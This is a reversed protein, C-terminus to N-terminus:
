TNVQCILAIAFFLISYRKSSSYNCSIEASCEKLASPQLKAENILMKIFNESKDDVTVGCKLSTCGSFANYNIRKVCKPINIIRLNNCNEFAFSEIIEVSNDPIMIYSINSCGYFSNQSIVTVTSPLYFFRVPSAPPVVLLKTLGIDFLAYNDVKFNTEELCEIKELNHCGKFVGFSFNKLNSGSQITFNVLKLNDQFCSEDLEEISLPLNISTLATGEFANKRIIKTNNNFTISSLNTALKFSFPDISEYSNSLEFSIYELGSYMFANQGIFSLTSPFRLIKLSSCNRFCEDSINIVYDEMDVTSLAICNYFCQQDLTCGSDSLTTRSEILNNSGFTINRLNICNQFSSKYVLQISSGFNFSKLNTCNIFADKEIYKLTNSEIVFDELGTCYEFAREQIRELLCESTIIIKHINSKQSFVAVSIITVTKPITIEHNAKSSFYAVITKNSSSLMIQNEQDIFFDSTANKFSIQLDDHCESFAGGRITKITDPLTVNKLKSNKSFCLPGIIQVGDPVDFYEFNCCTFLNSGFDIIKKTEFTISSLQQCYYFCFAGISNISQVLTIYKISSGRFCDNHITTLSSPFIVTEIQAAAMSFQLLDTTGEPVTFTGGKNISRPYFALQSGNSTYLCDNKIIYADNNGGDITIKNIDKNNYAFRANFANVNSPIHLETFTSADFVCNEMSTIECGVAYTVNKLTRVEAFCYSGLTKITKPFHLNILSTKSFANDNITTLGENFIVTNLSECGHFSNSDITQLKTCELFSIEKLQKCEYFAYPQILELLSGQPFIVEKISSKCDYFSYENKSKGSIIVTEKQITITEINPAAKTLTHYGDTYKNGKQDEVEQTIVIFLSFFFNM